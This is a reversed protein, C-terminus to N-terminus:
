MKQSNNEETYSYNYKKCLRHTSRDNQLYRKLKFIKNMINERSRKLTRSPDIGVAKKSKLDRLARDFEEGGLFKKETKNADRRGTKM